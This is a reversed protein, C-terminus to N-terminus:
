SCGGTLRFLQYSRGRVLRVQQAFADLLGHQQLYGAMIVVEAFWAPVSCRPEPRIQLEISLTPIM